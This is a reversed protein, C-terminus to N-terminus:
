AAVFVSSVLANKFVGGAPFIFTTNLRLRPSGCPVILQGSFLRPLDLALIMIGSSIEM